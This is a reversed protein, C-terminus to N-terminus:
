TDAIGSAIYLNVTQKLREKFFFLNIRIELRNLPANSALRLSKSLFEIYRHSTDKAFCYAQYSLKSVDNKDAQYHLWVPLQPCDTQFQLIM